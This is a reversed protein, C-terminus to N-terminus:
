DGVVLQSRGRATEEFLSYLASPLKLIPQLESHVVPSFFRSCELPLVCNKLESSKKVVHSYLLQCHCDRIM